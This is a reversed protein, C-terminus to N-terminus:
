NQHAASGNRPDACMCQRPSYEGCSVDQDHFTKHGCGDLYTMPDQCLYEHDLGINHSIEQAAVECDVTPSNFVQEFIWTIGNEFLTCDDNMNAIGGVGQGLGIMDPTGSIVAELHPVNGPDQDTVEVNFRSYEDQICTLFTQWAAAGKSYPPMDVASSAISSVNTRSDENQGATYHGGQGNVFIIRPQGDYVQVPGEHHRVIYTAPMQASVVGQPTQNCGFVFAIACLLQIRSGAMSEEEPAPCVALVVGVCVRRFLTPKAGVQPACVAAHAGCERVSTLPHVKTVEPWGSARARRIPGTSSITSDGSSSSTSSSRTSSCAA